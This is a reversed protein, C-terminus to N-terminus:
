LNKSVHSVDRKVNLLPLLFLSYPCVYYVSSKKKYKYINIRTGRCVLRIAKMLETAKIIRATQDYRLSLRCAEM